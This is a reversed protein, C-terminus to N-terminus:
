RTPSAPIFGKKLLKIAKMKASAKNTSGGKSKKVISRKVTSRAKDSMPRKSREGDVAGTDIMMQAKKILEQTEDDWDQKRAM